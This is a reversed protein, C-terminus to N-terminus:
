FEDHRFIKGFRQQLPLRDHADLNSFVVLSYFLRFAAEHEIGEISCLTIVSLSCLDKTDMGVVQMSKNSIQIQFRERFLLYYDSGNLSDAYVVFDFTSRRCM